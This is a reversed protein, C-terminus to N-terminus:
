SVRKEMLKIYEHWGVKRAKLIHSIAAHHQAGTCGPNASVIIESLKEADANNELILGFINKCGKFEPNLDPHTELYDMGAIVMNRCAQEYGGGFGSIEDCKETYKYKM